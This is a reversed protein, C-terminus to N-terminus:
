LRNSGTKDDDQNFIDFFSKKTEIEAGPAVLAM